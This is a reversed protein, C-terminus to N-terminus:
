KPTNKIWGENVVVHKIRIRRYTYTLHIKGDKTQTISPYSFEGEDTEVARSYKWTKGEDESLTLNLPTRRNFSDNYALVINGNDLMVMDVAANPNPIVTPQPETWDRGNNFSISKWLYNKKNRVRGTRMLSLLNGNKLQVTTPQINGPTSKLISTKKWSKLNDNSYMFVSSWAMEDYMPFIIDGNNLVLLHNRVMWGLEDRFIQEESWTYGNDTSIKSKIKCTTWGRGYMTMYYLILRKNKDVFLVPNGESYNPTDAVIEPKTWDSKGYILRSGLIAVDKASERTGAYWVVFLDKNPLEIIFSAHCSPFKAVKDFLMEGKYFPSERSCASIPIFILILFYFILKIKM